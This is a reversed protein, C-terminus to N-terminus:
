TCLNKCPVLGASRGTSCGTLNSSATLRLVAIASPSSSVGVNMARASSTISHVAAREDCQEAARGRPRERRPRLLRRQRHDSKEAAFRRAADGVQADLAHLLVDHRQVLHYRPGVDDGREDVRALGSHALWGRLPRLRSGARESQLYMDDLGAGFAVDFRGECAQGSEPDARQDDQGICEEDAAAILDGRQRYTVRHRGDIELALESGGAPQNPLAGPDGISLALDTDVGRPKEFASRGAVLPTM